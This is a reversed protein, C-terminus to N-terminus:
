TSKYKLKHFPASQVQPKQKFPLISHLLPHLIFLITPLQHLLHLFNNTNHVIVVSVIESPLTGPAFGLSTYDKM